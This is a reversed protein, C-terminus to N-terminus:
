QVKSVDWHFVHMDGNWSVSLMADLSREAPIKVRDTTVQGGFAEDPDITTTQLVTASLGTLTADLTDAIGKASAATGATALAVGLQAQAPSYHRYTYTGRPTTYTSTSTANQSAAYAAAGGAIATLILAATAANKAQREMEAHTFIRLPAGDAGAVVNEIGFNSAKDTENFAAVGFVLRGQENVGIPTIQVSGHAMDSYTTAQGQVYRITQDASAKPAMTYSTACASVAMSAATIAAIVQLRM